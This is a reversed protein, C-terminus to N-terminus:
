GIILQNEVDVVGPSYRATDQVAQYARWDSVAGSLYVVGDKVEVDIGDPNIDV